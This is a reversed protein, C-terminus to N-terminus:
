LFGLEKDTISYHDEDCVGLFDVNIEDNLDALQSFFLCIIRADVKQIYKIDM